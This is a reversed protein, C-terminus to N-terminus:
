TPCPYTLPENDAKDNWADYILDAPSPIGFGERPGAVVIAARQHQTASVVPWRSNSGFSPGEFPLVALQKALREAIEEWDTM